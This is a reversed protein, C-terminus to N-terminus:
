WTWGADSEGSSSFLSESSSWLNESMVDLDSEHDEEKIGVLQERHRQPDIITEALPLALTETMLIASSAAPSLTESSTSLDFQYAPSSPSLAFSPSEYNILSAPSLSPTDPSAPSYSFNALFDQAVAQPTDVSALTPLPPLIEPLSSRRSEVVPPCAPAPTTMWGVAAEGFRQKIKEKQVPCCLPAPDKQGDEWGIYVAGVSSFSNEVTYRARKSPPPCPRQRKPGLRSPSPSRKSPDISLTPSNPTAVPMELSPLPLPPLSSLCLRSPVRPKHPLQAAPQIPRSRPTPCSM